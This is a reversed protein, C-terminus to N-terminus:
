PETQSGLKDALAVALDLLAEDAGRPGIISLGIPGEPLRAVPLTVQPLGCLGAISGLAVLRRRVDPESGRGRPPPASVASPLLLVGDWNLLNDVHHRIAMQEQVAAAVQEQTTESAQQFRERTGPGFDPRHKTVWEKNVAWVEGMQITTFTSGWRALSDDPTVSAVRAENLTGLLSEMAAKNAAAVKYIAQVASPDVHDFADAAVLWRRLTFPARPFRLLAAGVARLTGADRTLWAGTDFSPAMPAAGRLDVREHSPRMGYLDCYSAPIRVSGATDTGLGIDVEGAAVAAACGSSSGGPIRGPASVNAPTGYHANVGDFSFAMEDMVATGALTAGSRLLAMVAPATHLAAEHTAQWTPNGNGAVNGEIDYLDKAIFTRGALPGSSNSGTIRLDRNMWASDQEIPPGYRPASPVIQTASLARQPANNM